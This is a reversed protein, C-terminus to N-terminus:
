REAHKFRMHADLEDQTKFRLPSGGKECEKTCVFQSM